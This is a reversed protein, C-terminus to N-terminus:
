SERKVVRFEADTILEAYPRMAAEAQQKTPRATGPVTVWVGPSRRGQVYWTAM